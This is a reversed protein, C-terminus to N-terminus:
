LSINFVQGNSHTYTAQNDCTGNGYDLIGDLYTGQLDLSGESIYSCSYSKILPIIVTSTLTTNNPRVVTRTGSTVKYVNDTLTLTTSGEILEVSRTDTYTYISGTPTTIKGNSLDRNWSPINPDTTTNEYVITGEVKYGNVYYNSGRVITMQSGNNIVYDTLTITLIGSRTIGNITCSSGFDVTITKPFEGPNANDISINACTTFVNTTSKNNYSNYSDALESSYNIDINDAFSSKESALILDVDTLTNSVPNEDKSCSSLLITIGLIFALKKM